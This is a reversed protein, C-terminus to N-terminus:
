LNEIDNEVCAVIDGTTKELNLLSFRQNIEPHYLCRYLVFLLENVQVMGYIYLKFFFSTKNLKYYLIKAKIPLYVNHYHVLLHHIKWIIDKFLNFYLQFFGTFKCM